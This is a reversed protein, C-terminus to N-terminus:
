CVKLAIGHIGSGYITFAQQVLKIDPNADSIKEYTCRPRVDDEIGYDGEICNRFRAYGEESEGREEEKADAALSLLVSGDVREM